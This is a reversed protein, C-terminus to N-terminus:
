EHSPRRDYLATSGRVVRYRFEPNGREGSHLSRTLRARRTPLEGPSPAEVPFRASRTTCTVCAVWDVLNHGPARTTRKQRSMSVTTLDAIGGDRWM